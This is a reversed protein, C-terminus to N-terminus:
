ESSAETIKRAFALIMFRTERDMLRNMTSMNQCDCNMCNMYYLPTEIVIPIVSGFSGNSRFSTHYPVKVYKMVNNSMGIINCYDCQHHRDYIEIRYESM